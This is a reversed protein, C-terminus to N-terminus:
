VDQKLEFGALFIVTVPAPALAAVTQQGTQDCEPAKNNKKLRPLSFSLCCISESQLQSEHQGDNATGDSASEKFLDMLAEDYSDPFM